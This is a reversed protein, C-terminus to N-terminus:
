FFALNAFKGGKTKVRMAVSRALFNSIQGALSLERAEIKDFMKKKNQGPQKRETEGADPGLDSVIVDPSQFKGIPHFRFLSNPRLLECLEHEGAVGRPPPATHM